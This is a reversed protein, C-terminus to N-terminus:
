LEYEGTLKVCAIRGGAAVSDAIKKSEYCSNWVGEKYINVWREITKKEKWEYVLDYPHQVGEEGAFSVYGLKTWSWSEMGSVTLVAGHIVDNNKNNPHIAYVIAKRGDRTKYYKGPQINIM